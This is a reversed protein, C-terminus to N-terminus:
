SRDLAIHLREYLIRIGARFGRQFEKAYYELVGTAHAAESFVQEGESADFAGVVLERQLRNACIQEELVGDVGDAPNHDVGAYLKLGRARGVRKDHGIRVCHMLNEAVEHLVRELVGLGALANAGGCAQEGGLDLEGNLVEPWTYRRFM